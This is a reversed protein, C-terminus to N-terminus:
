TYTPGPNGSFHFGAGIFHVMAAYVLVAVVALGIAGLFSTGLVYKFALLFAIPGLLLAWPGALVISAAAGVTGLFLSVASRILTPSEAGVVRAAIWVPASLVVVFGLEIAIAPLGTVSLNVRGGEASASIHRAVDL